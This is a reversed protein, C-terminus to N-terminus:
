QSTREAESSWCMRWVLSWAGDPLKELHLNEISVWTDPATTLLGSLISTIGDLGGRVASDRGADGRVNVSM